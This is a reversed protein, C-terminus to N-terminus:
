RYDEDSESRIGSFCGNFCGSASYSDKENEEKRRKREIDNFFKVDHRPFIKGSHSDLAM